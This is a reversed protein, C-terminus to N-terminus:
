SVESYCKKVRHSGLGSPGLGEQKKANRSQVGQVRLVKYSDEPGTIPCICFGRGPLVRCENSVSMRAAPNSNATGGLSRGCDQAKSGAAILM